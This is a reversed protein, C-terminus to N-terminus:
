APLCANLGRLLDELFVALDEDSRVQSGSVLTTSSAPEGDISVTASWSRQGEHDRHSIDLFRTRSDGVSTLVFFQGYKGNEGSEVWWQPSLKHALFTRIEDHHHKRRPSRLAPRVLTPSSM